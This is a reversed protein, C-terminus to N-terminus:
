NICLSGKVEWHSVAGRHIIENHGPLAAGRCLQPSDEQRSMVAVRIVQNVLSVASNRVGSHLIPPKILPVHVFSLGSLPFAVTSCSGSITVARQQYSKHSM